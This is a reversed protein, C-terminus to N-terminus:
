REPERMVAELTRAKEQYVSLLETRLHANFRNGDAQARLEAIAADLVLLKERYSALLPSSSKEMKPEALKALRDIARLYVKESQELERLAEETLFRQEAPTAGRALQAPPPTGLPQVYRSVIWLTSVSLVVLMAMAGAMQWGRGWGRWLAPLSWLSERQPPAQSEEALRQRIRPLLAPSEWEKQMTHAAASIENWLALEERCEACAAAHAALARLADPEAERLIRERDNCGVTKM